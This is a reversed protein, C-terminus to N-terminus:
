PLLEKSIPHVLGWMDIVKELRKGPTSDRSPVGPLLASAQGAEGSPM